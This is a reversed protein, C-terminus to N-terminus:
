GHLRKTTKWVFAVTQVIESICLRYSHQVPLPSVSFGYLPPNTEMAFGVSKVSAFSEPLAFDAEQNINRPVYGLSTGDLLKVAIANSDYPNEPEHILQM